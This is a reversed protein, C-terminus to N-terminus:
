LTMVKLCCGHNFVYLMNETAKMKEPALPYENHHDHLEPSYDLDVELIYGVESDDSV